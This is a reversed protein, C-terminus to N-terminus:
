LTNVKMYAERPSHDKDLLIITGCHSFGLKKLLNQMPINDKHTDVRVNKYRSCVDHLIFTGVGKQISAIRHIVVYPEGNLWSGDIEQYNGDKHYLAFTGLIRAGNQVIFSAKNQIDKRLSNEDPAGKAWQTPNGHEVMFSRAKAYINLIQPIDSEKTFRIEM